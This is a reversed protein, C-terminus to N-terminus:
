WMREGFYLRMSKYCDELMQELFEAPVYAEREGKYRWSFGRTSHKYWSCELEKYVFNPLAANESDEDWCYARVSFTDDSYEEGTNDFPSNMEFQNKNWYLRDMEDKIRLLAAELLLKRGESM